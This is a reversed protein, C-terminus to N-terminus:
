NYAAWGVLFDWTMFRRMIISKSRVGNPPFPATLRKFRVQAESLNYETAQECAVRAIPRM